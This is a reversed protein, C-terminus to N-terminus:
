TPGLYLALISSHYKLSRNFVQLFPLEVDYEELAAQCQESSEFMIEGFDDFVADDGLMVRASQVWADFERAALIARVTPDLAAIESRHFLDRTVVHGNREFELLKSAPLDPATELNALSELADQLTQTNPVV